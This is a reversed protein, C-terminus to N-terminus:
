MKMQSMKRSCRMDWARAKYCAWHALIRSVGQVEPLRLYECIQIALPYLRRLVLRDLLVQITLQKYRHKGQNLILQYLAQKGPIQLGCRRGRIRGHGTTFVRMGYMPISPTPSLSGLTTTELLMSCEFTRVCTCSATLHFDTLSVSELHLRGSCVRKCTQSTSM